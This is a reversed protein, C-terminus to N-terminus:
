AHEPSHATHEAAQAARAQARPALSGLASARSARPHVHAEAARQHEAQRRDLERGQDEVHLRRDELTEIEAVRESQASRMQQLQNEVSSILELVEDSRIPSPGPPETPTSDGGAVSGGPGEGNRDSPVDNTSRDSM